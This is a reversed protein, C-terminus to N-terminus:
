PKEDASPPKSEAVLASAEELWFQARTTAKQEAEASDALKKRANLWDTAFAVQRSADELALKRRGAQTRHQRWDGFMLGLVGLLATLIPTLVAVAIDKMSARRGCLSVPVIIIQGPLPCILIRSSSTTIVSM